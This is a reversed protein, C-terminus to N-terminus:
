KLLLKLANLKLVLAANEKRKKEEDSDDENPATREILTYTTAKIMEFIKEMTENKNEIKTIAIDFADSLDM